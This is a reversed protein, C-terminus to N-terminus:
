VYIQFHERLISFIKTRYIHLSYHCHALIPTSKITLLVIWKISHRANLTLKRLRQFFIREFMQDDSYLRITLDQVNDFHIDSSVSQLSEIKLSKLYPLISTTLKLHM